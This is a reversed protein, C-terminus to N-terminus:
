ANKNEMYCKGYDADSIERIQDMRSALCDPCVLRRPDGPHRGRVEITSCGCVGCRKGTRYDDAIKKIKGINM